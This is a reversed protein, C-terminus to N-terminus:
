DQVYSMLQKGGIKEKKKPSVLKNYEFIIEFLTGWYQENAWSMDMHMLSLIACMKPYTM